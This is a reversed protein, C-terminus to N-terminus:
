LFYTKALHGWMEPTFSSTGQGGSGVCTTAFGFADSLTVLTATARRCRDLDPPISGCADSRFSIGVDAAKMVGSGEVLAVFCMTEGSSSCFGIM